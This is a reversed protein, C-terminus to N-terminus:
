GRQGKDGVCAGGLAQETVSNSVVAPMPYGRTGVGMWSADTLAEGSTSTFELQGVEANRCPLVDAGAM